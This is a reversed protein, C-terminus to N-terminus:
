GYVVEGLVAVQVVEDATCCDFDAEEPRFLVNQCEEICTKSTHKVDGKAIKRIASILVKYDISKTIIGVDNPNELRVTWVWGDPADDTINAPDWERRMGRWWSFADFGSGFVLSELDQETIKEMTTM